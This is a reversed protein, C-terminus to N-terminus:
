IRSMKGVWSSKFIVGFVTNETMHEYLKLIKLFINLCLLLQTEVIWTREQYEPGQGDRAHNFPHAGLTDGPFM